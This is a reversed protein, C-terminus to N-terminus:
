ILSLPYVFKFLLFLSIHVNTKLTYHKMIEFKYLILLFINHYSTMKNIYLYTLICVGLDFTDNWNSSFNKRTFIALSVPFNNKKCLIHHIKINVDDYIFNNINNKLFAAAIRFFFNFNLQRALSMLNLTNYNWHPSWVDSLGAHFM